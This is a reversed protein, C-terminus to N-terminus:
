ERITGKIRKKLSYDTRQGQMEEMTETRRKNKNFVLGGEQVRKLRKSTQRGVIDCGEQSVIDM